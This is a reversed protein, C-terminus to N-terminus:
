CKLPFTINSGFFFFNKKKYQLLLHLLEPRANEEQTMKIREREEGYGLGDWDACSCVKWIIIKLQKYAIKLNMTSDFSKFNLLFVLYM